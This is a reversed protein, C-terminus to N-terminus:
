RQPGSQENFPRPNYVDDPAYQSEGAPQVPAAPSASLNGASQVPAVAFGAPAQKMTGNVAPQNPGVGNALPPPPVAAQPPPSAKAPGPPMAPRSVAVPAATDDKHLLHPDNSPLEEVWERLSQFLPSVRGPLPAVASGGHACVSWVLLPSVAPKELNVQKLVAALNQQLGRRNLTPDSCRVLKFTGSRNTAHCGACTNMLIPQVRSTFMSLSEASLHVNPVPPTADHPLQPGTATRQAAAGQLVARLRKSAAHEPRMRLAADVEALALAHLGHQDCWRALRLREDPDRLNAQKCLTAFADDWSACLWLVNDAPLLIEGSAQRIRYQEGVREIDGELARYNQLVLVRGSTRSRPTDQASLWAALLVSGTLVALSLRLTITM